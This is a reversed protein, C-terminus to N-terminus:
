ESPKTKTTRRERERQVADGCWRGTKAMGERLGVRTSDVGTVAENGASARMDAAETRVGCEAM